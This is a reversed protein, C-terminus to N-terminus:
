AVVRKAEEAAKAVPAPAAFRDAAVADPKVALLGSDVVGIVQEATHGALFGTLRARVQTGMVILDIGGDKALERIAVAADSRPLHVQHTLGDLPHKSMLEALGTERREKHRMLIDERVSPVTESRITELDPGDVDWAHLIHLEAGDREALSAALGLIKESLELAGDHPAFPDVAALIRRYPVPQGPKVVWVPCPCKRMLQTSTSGLVRERFTNGAEISAILIDHAGSEVERILSPAPAGDLIIAQVNDIGAHRIGDEIRMLRKETEALQGPVLEHDRLLAAVTLSAGNSRALSVAQSIADDGGVANDYAVLINKFRKM